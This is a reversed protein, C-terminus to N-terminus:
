TSFFLIRWIKPNIYIFKPHIYKLAGNVVQLQYLVWWFLKGVRQDAGDNISVKM